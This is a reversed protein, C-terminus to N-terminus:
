PIKWYNDSINRNIKRYVSGVSTGIPEAIRKKKSAFYEDSKM